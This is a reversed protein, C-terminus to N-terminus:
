RILELTNSGKPKHLLLGHFVYVKRQKGQYEREEITILSSNIRQNKFKISELRVIRNNALFSMKYNDIPLIDISNLSKSYEDAMKKTKSKTYFNAQSIEKERKIVLNEIKKADKDKILNIYNEYFNVVEKELKDKDVKTLDQSESWGKLNYPVEANFTFTHEYYPLGKIRILNNKDGIQPIKITIVDEVDSNEDASDYKEILIEIEANKSFTDYNKGKYEGIPYLKVTVNQLGSKLIADNISTSHGLLNTQEFHKFVLFDNVFLEYFCGSQNAEIFYKPRSEYYTIENHLNEIRDFAGGILHEKTNQALSILCWFCFFLNIKLRREKLIM